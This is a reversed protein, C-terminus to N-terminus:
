FDFTVGASLVAFMREDSQITPLSVRESVFFDYGFADFKIKFNVFPIMRRATAKVPPATVIEDFIIASLGVGYIYDFYEGSTSKKAYAQVSASDSGLYADYSVLADGILWFNSNYNLRLGTGIWTENPMRVLHNVDKVPQLSLLRHAFDQMNDIGFQGSSKIRVYYAAGARKQPQGLEITILEGFSRNAERFKNRYVHMDPSVIGLDLSAYYGATNYRLGMNHTEYADSIQFGNVSDNHFYATLGESQAASAAIFPVVLLRM